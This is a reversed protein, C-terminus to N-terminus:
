LRWVALGVSGLVAADFDANGDVLCRDKMAERGVGDLRTGIGIKDCGITRCHRGFEVVLPLGVYGQSNVVVTNM